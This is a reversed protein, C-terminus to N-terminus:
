DVHRIQEMLTEINELIKFPQSLNDRYTIQCGGARIEVIGYIDAVPVICREGAENTVAIFM